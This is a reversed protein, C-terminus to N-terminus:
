KTPYGDEGLSLGLTLGAAQLQIARAPLQAWVARKYAEDARGWAVIEEISRACGECWGTAAHMRCLNRCPSPVASM